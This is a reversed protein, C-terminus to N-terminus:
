TLVGIKRKVSSYEIYDRKYNVNRVVRKHGDLEAAFRCNDFIKNPNRFACVDIYTQVECEFKKLGEHVTKKHKRLNSAYAFRQECIDCQYRMEGEHVSRVHQDM